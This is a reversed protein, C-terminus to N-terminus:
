KKSRAPPREAGLERLHTHAERIHTSEPYDKIFNKFELIADNKKDPQKMLAVAKFYQAEPTKPNKPFKELVADFAKVADAWSEARYYIQGIYYQADPGHSTASFYQLYKGFEDLALEDKKAMYDTYATNYSVEASMGAPPQPTTSAPADTAPPPPPPAAAAALTRVTQSIDTVKDNMDNFKRVLEAVNERVRGFDGSMDEVRTSLTVVPTLVKTQQDNLKQDVDRQMAALTQANKNAQDVAQQMLATLAAMKEDFSKQLQKVNDELQAVDRQISVLEDKKQGLLIAPSLALCLLFARM